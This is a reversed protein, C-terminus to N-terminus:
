QAGRKLLSPWNVIVSLPEPRDLTVSILFRQGDPTADYPSIGLFGPPLSFLQRPSDAEISSGKPNLRASMLRADKSLFFLEHSTAGWHPFSGGANSIHFKERPEPFAQVYVEYQGSEDSAYAVWYGDPSFRALKQDFLARIYPQPKAGPAPRGESTVALTWLDVGTDPSSEQYIIFHGDRSWDSILQSNPSQTVREEVGGGDAGIRFINFPAGFAFLITRGDPSWVPYAHIGRGPTLRTEVARATDMVWLDANPGARSTAVRRGDASIRSLVYVNPEGLAGVEKGTRDLWKLQRVPISSTHILTRGGSVATRTNNAVLQPEGTLRRTKPDFPQSLLTNGSVWLLYGSSDSGRAYWGNNANQVLRTREGPKELSAIYVDQSQVSQLTYILEGDPLVQPSEYSIDGRARDLLALPSPIGGSAPVIFLGIDRYSFLIRGDGLWVGGYAAGNLACIKSPTQRSLDIQQLSAGTFFAISRGSPSWFPRTAGESGPVMWAQAADLPRIWLASKGKVFAPFAVSRGDPSIALGRGLPGGGFIRGAEPAEIEFRIVLDDQPQQRLYAAAAAGGLMAMFLIAAAVWWRGFSRPERVQAPEVSWELATKLDRASQFRQDPDKALCRRSVRDLPPSDTSHEPERELIAAIVSAACQGAFAQKGTIMEYLVCGFSFLDSRADVEKGQLQEPSMYHLTGVIQGQQTLARTVDTESLPASHKALGFDLLKVGQKTVLINAPKLDRHTLGKRHAADLADLIQGAYEIAKELPLPGRLPEGDVFEMVLYNPGVDYLQCVHPHNLAAIARAEHEFRDSFRESSVKVAVVRGLRTDTAKYVEGMGGVGIQTLIQYPGLKDGVSLVM